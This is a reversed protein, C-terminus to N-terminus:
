LVSLPSYIRYSGVTLSSYSPNKSYKVHYKGNGLNTCTISATLTGVTLTSCLNTSDELYIDDFKYHVYLGRTLEKIEKLSLSHDYVRIDKAYFPIAAGPGNGGWVAGWDIYIARSPLDTANPASVTSILVGNKYLRLIRKDYDFDVIIHVWTDFEANFSGTTRSSMQTSRICGKISLTNFVKSTYMANAQWIIGM